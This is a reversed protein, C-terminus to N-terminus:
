AKASDSHRCRVGKGFYCYHEVLGADVVGGGAHYKKSMAVIAYHRAQAECAAFDIRRVDVGAGVAIDEIDPLGDVREADDEGALGAVLEGDCADEEVVALWAEGVM